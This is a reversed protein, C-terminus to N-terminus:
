LNTITNSPQSEEPYLATVYATSRSPMPVSATTGVTDLQRVGNVYIRYGVPGPQPAEWTLVIYPTPLPRPANVCGNWVLGILLSAACILILRLKTM